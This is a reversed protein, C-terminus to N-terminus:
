SRDLRLSYGGAGEERMSVQVFYWGTAPARYSVSETAGPGASRAALLRRSTTPGLRRVGPKWLMLNMDTGATGRIAARLGEGRRLRIRYVDRRDDWYDLSAVVHDRGVGLRRARAGADDNPEYADAAALPGSRLADIAAAVDLRGWGTYRDRDYRCRRCGTLPTADEASRTLLSAVQEAGVDVGLQQAVSLLQAAAGAVQPAAFSTGEAKRFEAPGCESYGQFVCTSRQSTLVRPLTSFIDVGPAAIDNYRDDRNSFAPVSGDRALASVGIVHPLAAPYSAYRWPMAPAQDGNGVAAVVVVGHQVAYEIADAELRSFTDRKPNLPDRVGGFSLNIVSAGEQVAWKIARAEAELSISGDDRVVKAILLDTGLGIGAIGEANNTEGAIIGAVFTGHGHQDKGWSGGVFSRGSEIRPKLDPHTADIGSDIVAVRIRPNFPAPFAPWTDFARIQPLYWQRAFLPDAPVFAIRRSADIREVYRVGAVSAIGRANPARLMLGFPALPSVTGGTAAELERAVGARDAGPELGVAFRAAAAPAPVALALVAVIPLLKRTM